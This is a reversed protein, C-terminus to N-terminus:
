QSASGAAFGVDHSIQVDKSVNKEKSPKHTRERLRRNVTSRWYHQYRDHFSKGRILGYAIALYALVTPLFNLLYPFGEGPAVTVRYSEIGLVCSLLAFFITSWKSLIVGSIVVPIAFLPRISVSADLNSDAWFIALESILLGAQIMLATGGPSLSNHQM